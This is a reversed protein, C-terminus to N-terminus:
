PSVLLPSNREDYERRAASIMERRDLAWRALGNIPGLAERGLDTLAYDVRPPVTPTVTRHVVGDRELGRLTATLVRHTVGDLIRHLENFRMPGAELRRIIMISWKDGIRALVQAVDRCADPPIESTREQEAM